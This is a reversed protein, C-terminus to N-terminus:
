ATQYYVVAHRSSSLYINKNKNKNLDHTCFNRCVRCMLLIVSNKYILWRLESVIRCSRSPLYHICFSYRVCDPQCKYKYSKGDLTKNPLFLQVKPVNKFHFMVTCGSSRKTVGVRNFYRDKQSM